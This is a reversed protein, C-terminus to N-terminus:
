GKPASGGDMEGVDGRRSNVDAIQIVISYPRVSQIVTYVWLLPLLPYSFFTQPLWWTAAASSSPTTLSHTLCFEEKLPFLKVNQHFEVKDLIVYETVDDVATTAM